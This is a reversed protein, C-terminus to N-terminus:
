CTGSEILFLSLLLRVGFTTLSFALSYRKLQKASEPQHENENNGNELYLPTNQGYGNETNKYASEPEPDPEINHDYNLNMVPPSPSICDTKGFAAM